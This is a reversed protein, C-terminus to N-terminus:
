KSLFRELQKSHVHINAIRYKNQHFTAYPVLRGEDDTEWIYQLKSVDFVSHRNVFGIWDEHGFTGGLYQGIAAADFIVQFEDFHNSYVSDPYPDLTEFINWKKFELEKAYDYFPHHERYEPFIVPLHDVYAKGYQQRWKGLVEMEYYHFDPNWFISLSSLYTEMAEAHKFYTIGPVGRITMDFTVAAQYHAELIPLIEDINLYLMVDNELCIANTIKHADLFEHIYFFREAAYSFFHFVPTSFLFKNLKRRIFRRHVYSKANDEVAIVSVNLNAFREELQETYIKHALFYIPCEPNFLRAQTIATKAYEPPPKDGIHTFVLSYEGFLLIPVFFFSVIVLKM